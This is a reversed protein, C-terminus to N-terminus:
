NVTGFLRKPGICADAVSVAMRPLLRRGSGVSLSALLGAAMGETAHLDIATLTMLNVSTFPLWQGRDASCAAVVGGRSRPRPWRCIIWCCGAPAAGLMIALRIAAVLLGGSVDPEDAIGLSLWTSWAVPIAANLTGWMILILAALWLLHGFGLFVLAAASALPLRYLYLALLVSACYTVAFGALGWGLLLSLQNVDVGASTELFPRLYTFTSFAGVFSLMVVVM